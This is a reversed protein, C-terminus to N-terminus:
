RAVAVARDQAGFVAARLGFPSEHAMQIADQAQNYPIICQIPGFIKEQAIVSQHNVQSFITPKM